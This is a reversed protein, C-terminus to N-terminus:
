GFLGLYFEEGRKNTKTRGGFDYGGFGWIGLASM